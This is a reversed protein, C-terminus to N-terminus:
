FTSTYTTGTLGVHLAISTPGTYATIDVKLDEGILVQPNIGVPIAFLWFETTDIFATLPTDLIIDTETPGIQKYIRVSGETMVAGTIETIRCFAQTFIFNTPSNTIISYTATSLGDIDKLYCNTPIVIDPASALNVLTPYIEATAM